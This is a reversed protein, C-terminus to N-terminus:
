HKLHIISMNTNKKHNDMVTALFSDSSSPVSPGIRFSADIDLSTLTFTYFVEFFVDFAVAFSCSRSM